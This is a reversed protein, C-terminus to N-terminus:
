VDLLVPAQGGGLPQPHQRGGGQGMSISATKLPPWAGPEHSAWVRARDITYLFVRKYTFGVYVFHWFRCVIPSNQKLSSIM